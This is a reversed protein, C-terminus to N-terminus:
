FPIRVGALLGNKFRPKNWFTVESKEQLVLQAGSRTVFVWEYGVEVGLAFSRTCTGVDIGFRMRTFSNKGRSVCPKYAIGAGLGYHRNWFYERCVKGCSPCTSWQTFYDAYAELAHHYANEKELTLTVNLIRPYSVGAHLGVYRDGEGARATMMCCLLAIIAIYRGM